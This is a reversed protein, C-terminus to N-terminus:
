GARAVTKLLYPNTTNCSRLNIQSQIFNKDIIINIRSNFPFMCFLFGTGEGKFNRSEVSSFRKGQLFNGGPRELFVIRQDNDVRCLGNVLIKKFPSIRIFNIWFFSHLQM